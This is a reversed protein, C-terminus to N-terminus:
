GHCVKIQWSNLIGLYLFLSFFRTKWTFISVSTPHSTFSWDLLRVGENGLQYKLSNMFEDDGLINFGQIIGIGGGMSDKSIAYKQGWYNIVKDDGSFVEGPM